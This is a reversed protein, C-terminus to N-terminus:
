DKTPTLSSFESYDTFLLIYLLHHASFGHLLVKKRVNKNTLRCAM